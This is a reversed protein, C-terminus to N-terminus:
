NKHTYSKFTGNTYFVVIREINEEIYNGFSSESQKGTSTEQEEHSFLDAVTKQPAPPATITSKSNDDKPFSGKGNLLWYIDVEPFTEIIKLIFDLSPKNRGSLLHSLGSRQIGLKDAFASASVNYYELLFELRKIFDETNVM